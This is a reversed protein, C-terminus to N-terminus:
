MLAEDSASEVLTRVDEICPADSASLIGATASLAVRMRAPKCLLVHSGVSAQCDHQEDFM